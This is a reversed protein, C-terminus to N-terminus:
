GVATYSEMEMSFGETEEQRYSCSLRIDAASAGLLFVYDGSEVTKRHLSVNFYALRRVPVTLTVQESEGPMLNDTKHYSLLEKQPRDIYSYPKSMYVQAVEKGPYAGTNKVSFTFQLDDQVREVSFDGYAFTTYSLGHGFPYAVQQPHEDYYRYGVAWHEDYRLVRGNGPYELDTRPQNAMTEPLKGSPSVQGSLVAAIASGGAEGAMWMQVVAAAQENWLRPVVTNGTQLVLVIHSNLNRVRNIYSDYYHFLYPTDLDADETETGFPHGLFMVVLDADVIANGSAADSFDPRWDFISEESSLSASYGKMYTVKVQGALAKQLEKVPSDVYDARPYVRASGYGYYVPTDAYEGIVVVHKYKEPTIPLTQGENKLLVIGEAAVREALEHQRNREYRIQAPKTRTLFSVLPEIAEDIQTETIRGDALAQALREQRDPQYPMQLGMGNQLSVVPDKVGYWDSLIIGHYGWANRLVERMLYANEMCLIGNIRNYAMMVASPSSGELAIEFTRLYIDRLTREDVDVSATGRYLEQNNAACHKLCAGVGLSEVGRIYAAATEGALVPDESFYEFSRGCLPTRKINVGPGLIMDKGHRICDKAIGVGMEEVLSRNWTAAVAGGCPFATCNKEPQKELRVGLPGDACMAGEIELRACGATEMSSAGGLLALKEDVTMQNIWEKATKRM